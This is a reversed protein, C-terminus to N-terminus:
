EPTNVHKQLVKYSGGCSVLWSILNNMLIEIYNEVLDGGGAEGSTCLAFDYLCYLTSSDSLNDRWQMSGDVLELKGM